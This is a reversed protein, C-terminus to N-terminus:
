GTERGVDRIATEEYGKEAILGAAVSLLHELKRQTGARSRRHVRERPSTVPAASTSSV